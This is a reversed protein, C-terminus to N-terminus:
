DDVLLIRIDREDKVTSFDDNDGDSLKEGLEQDPDDSERSRNLNTGQLNKMTETNEKEPHLLRLM